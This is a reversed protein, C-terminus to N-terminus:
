ISNPLERAVNCVEQFITWKERDVKVESDGLNSAVKQTERRVSVRALNEYMMYGRAGRRMREKVARVVAARGKPGARISRCLPPVPNLPKQVTAVFRQIM